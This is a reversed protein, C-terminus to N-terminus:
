AVIAPDVRAVVYGAVAGAGFGPAFVRTPRTIVGDRVADQLAVPISASSTNGVREIDFYLREPALGAAQALAAVMTKNAQHPVVLEIADLLSSHDGDPHPLAALEGLMQDLYRKVLARVDPGYVTLDNDFEPNPWIISEVEPMPGSAYTQFVEVDPPAGRPAPGIVLAAAADGFLMRSARVTGIKDSFKEGAVILIPRETEELLRIAEAVAYPLGACAAVLDYAAHTQLIGLQGALWTAVSPMMRTSTCSCFLVAGVEDPWRRCKVLSEQAAQLSLEELPLETYTRQEIGTKVKIDEASMPSWCYAANRVLDENTCVHEGRCVSLAELRPMVTFHQRVHVPAVPPATSRPAAPVRRPRAAPRGARMRALLRGVEVSRPHLLVVIDDDGLASGPVLRTRERDWPFANHLVMAHRMLAELEPVPHRYAVLDEYRYLPYDPAYDLLEQVLAQPDALAEAVTPVIPATAVEGGKRNRFIDLLLGYITQETAADWAPPLARYTGAIVAATPALDIPRAVPLWVDARQRPVDRWRTPRKDYLIMAYRDAWFLNTAVDRLLEYRSAYAGADCRAVIDVETRAKQEFDRRIVAEFQELTEFLSVDFSPFFNFPFVIRGHRNVIFRKM